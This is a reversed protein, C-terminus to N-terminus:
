RREPGITVAALRVYTAVMLTQQGRCRTFLERAPKSGVTATFLLIWRGHHDEVAVALLLRRQRNTALQLHVWCLSTTQFQFSTVYNLNQLTRLSCHVSGQRM